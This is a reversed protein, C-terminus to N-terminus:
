RVRWRSFLINKCCWWVKIPLSLTRVQYDKRTVARNQSGFNALANERIEDITDGDGKGGTSPQENDVAISNKSQQIYQYNMMQQINEIRM